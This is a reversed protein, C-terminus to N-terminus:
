NENIKDGREVLSLATINRHHFSGALSRKKYIKAIGKLVYYDCSVVNLSNIQSTPKKKKPFSDKAQHLFNYM